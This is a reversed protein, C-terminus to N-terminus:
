HDAARPQRGTATSIDATLGLLLMADHDPTGPEAQYVVLRHNDSRAVELVEYSLTMRGVAPHDFRKVGNTKTRVDYREWLRAFEESEALLEGIVRTLDPADPRAGAASRLHAVTAAAVEDWNDYVRRADPHLFTYRATNRAHVPWQEVGPLLAMGAENTALLDSARSLVYAPHPRVIDLLRRVEARVTRSPELSPGQEVPAGALEFLHRREDDDLRLVTAIAELVPRSPNSQKGQELRTYYEISLGALMAVEERRLGATRRRGTTAPLGADQPSVRARRSRLFEGFDTKNSM